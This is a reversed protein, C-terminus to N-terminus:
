LEFVSFKVHLVEIIRVEETPTKQMRRLISNCEELGQKLITGKVTPDELEARTRNSHLELLKAQFFDKNKTVLEKTEENACVLSVTYSLIPSGKAGEAPRVSVTGEPLTVAVSTEPIADSKEEPAPTKAEETLRPALLFKFAGFGAGAGIVLAVLVVVLMKIMGGSKGGSQKEEAM